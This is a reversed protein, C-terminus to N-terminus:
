QKPFLAQIAASNVQVDYRGQLALRYLASFDDTRQRAIQASLQEVNAPETAPDPESVASLVAVAYGEDIPSVVPAKAAPDQEFLADVLTRSVGRGSPVAGRQLGDATVVEFGAERAADALTEGGRVADALKNAAVEAAKEQAERRWDAIVRDRIDALPQVAPPTIEDVRLIFYDGGQTETLTSETDQETDFLTTLVEDSNALDPMAKSGDPGLGKRDIPGIVMPDVGIAAAAQELSAGGALEDELKTSLRYLSDAALDLSMQKRLEERVEDFSKRRPPTIKEVYFLHWGFSTQVPPSVEGEGLAFVADAAAAPLAKREIGGMKLMTAGRKTLAAAVDSFSKGEDLMHRGEAILDKDKSVIQEVDRQEPTDFDTIRADYEARLDDDSLEIDHVVAEPTLQVYTAKRYEPATYRAANESHFAKLTAEDPEGVDAKVDRPIIAIEASRQEFRYRFLADTLAHPPAGGSTVTGVLQDARIDHRVLAEYSEPTLNSQRLTSKYRVQDFKGKDDLFVPQKEITHRVLSDAVGIGLHDAEQDVLAQGIMRGLVQASVGMQHAQESTLDPVRAQLRQVERRFEQSFRSTQIEEDGVKAVVSDKGGRFVDSIGWLGFSLALAIIIARGAWKRTGERLSGPM